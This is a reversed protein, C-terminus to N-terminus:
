GSVTTMLVFVSYSSKLISIFTEMKLAFLGGARMELPQMTKIMATTVLNNIGGHYNNEWGSMWQSTTLNDAQYKLENGLACWYLLQLFGGSLYIIARMLMPKNDSFQHDFNWHFIRGFHEEGLQAFLCASFTDNLENLIRILRWHHRVCTQFRWTFGNKIKGIENEEFATFSSIAKQEDDIKLVNFVTIGNVIDHNYMAPKHLKSTCNQYNSSLIKFQVTMWRLFELSIFELASLSVLNFTTAYSQIFYAIEFFPSITTDFPFIARCPLDGAIASLTILVTGLLGACSITLYFDIKEFITYEKVVILVGLDCSQTLIDIPDRIDDILKLIKKRMSHSIQIKFYILIWGAIIAGDYAIIMLDTCNVVADAVITLGYIITMSHSFIIISYILIKRFMTVSPDSDFVGCYRLISISRNLLRRRSKVSFNKM